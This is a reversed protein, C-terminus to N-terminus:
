IKANDIQANHKKNELNRISSDIIPNANEYASQFDDTIGVYNLLNNLCDLVIYLKDDAEKALHILLAIRSNDNTNNPLSSNQISNDNSMNNWEKDILDRILESASRYKKRQLIDKIQMNTTHSVTFCKRNIKEM